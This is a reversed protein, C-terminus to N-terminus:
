HGNFVIYLLIMVIVLALWSWKVRAPLNAILNALKKKISLGRSDEQERLALSPKQKDFRSILILLVSLVVFIYFSLLLFHPWGPYLKAPFVWLYLVGIFVSFAT